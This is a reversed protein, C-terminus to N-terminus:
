VVTRYFKLRGIRVVFRDVTAWKPPAISIDHYSDAGPAPHQLGGSVACAAVRLCAMWSLETSAPWTTLQRDKPDTASSFQWPRFLVEMVDNGWWGGRRVREMICGAVAAKCEDCEGRAERWIVLALFVLDAAARLQMDRAEITAPLITAM